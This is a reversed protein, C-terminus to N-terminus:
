HPNSKSLRWFENVQKSFQIKYDKWLNAIEDDGFSGFYIRPTGLLETTSMKPRSNSAVMFGVSLIGTLVLVVSSWAFINRKPEEAVANTSSKGLLSTSEEDFHASM